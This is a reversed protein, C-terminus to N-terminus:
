RGQRQHPRRVRPAADKPFYEAQFERVELKLNFDSRLGLSQRGVAIIKGTNEFSEILLTQIM